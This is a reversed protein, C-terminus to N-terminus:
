GGSVSEAVVNYLKPNALTGDRETEDKVYCYVVNDCTSEIAAAASFASSGSTVDIAIRAGAQRSKEGDIIDRIKKQVAEFDHYAIGDHVIVEPPPGTRKAILGEIAPKYYSKADPHTDTSPVLHIVRLRKKSADLFFDITKFGTTWAFASFCNGKNDKPGGIRLTPCTFYKLMDRTSIDLKSDGCMAIQVTNEKQQALAVVKGLLGEEKADGHFDSQENRQPKSVPLILADVPDADHPAHTALRHAVAGRFARAGLFLALLTLALLLLVDVILWGWERNAMREFVGDVHASALNVAVGAGVIAGVVASQRCTLGAFLRRGISSQTISVCIQELRKGTRAGIEEWKM